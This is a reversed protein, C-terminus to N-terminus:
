RIPQWGSFVVKCPPWDREHDASCPFSFLLFLRAAYGGGGGGGVSSTRLFYIFDRSADVPAVCTTPRADTCSVKPEDVLGIPTAECFEVSGDAIILNGTENSLAPHLHDESWEVKSVENGRRDKRAGWAEDPSIPVDRSEHTERLDGRSGRNVFWLLLTTSVIAAKLVMFEFYVFKMYIKKYPVCVLMM